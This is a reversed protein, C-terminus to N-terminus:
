LNKQIGVIGNKSDFGFDELFNSKRYDADALTGGITILASINPVELGAVKALREWLVLGISIDEQFYRSEVSTPGQIDRFVPSTNFLEQLSKDPEYAFYGSNFRSEKEGELEYGYARALTRREEAVKRMLKLTHKTIGERYLYFDGKSYDIRGTNLVSPAPHVEPNANLLFAHLVDEAKQYIPYLQNAIEYAEDGRGKPYSTIYLRKVRLSLEILGRDPYARTAYPLSNAEAFFFNTEINMDKIANLFLISAFCASLNFLIMQDSTIFPAVERAYRKLAIGPLTFLVVDADKIVEEPNCLIDIGNVVFSSDKEQVVVSNGPLMKRYKHFNKPMTYVKVEFGRNLLDAATTLGGHGSGIVAIRKVKKINAM